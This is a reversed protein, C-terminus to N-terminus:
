SGTRRTRRSRRHTVSRAIGTVATMLAAAWLFVGITPSLLTYATFGATLLIVVAAAVVDVSRL